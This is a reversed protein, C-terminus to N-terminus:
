MPIRDNTRENAPFAAREHQPVIPVHVRCSVNQCATTDRHQTLPFKLYYTVISLHLMKQNSTRFIFLLRDRFESSKDELLPTTTRLIRCLNKSFVAHSLYTSISELSSSYFSFLLFFRFHDHIKNSIGGKQLRMFKTIGFKPLSLSLSILHSPKSWMWSDTPCDRDIADPITIQFIAVTEESLM